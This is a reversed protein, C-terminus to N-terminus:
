RFLKTSPNDKAAPIGLGFTYTIGEFSILANAVPLFGSFPTTQTVSPQKSCSVFLSNSPTIACSNVCM